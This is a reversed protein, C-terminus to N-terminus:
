SAEEEEEGEEAEQDQGFFSEKTREAVYDKLNAMLEEDSFPQPRPAQPAPPQPVPQVIALGRLMARAERYLHNVCRHTGVLAGYHMAPMDQELEQRLLLLSKQAQAFQEPTTDKTLQRFITDRVTRYFSDSFVCLPAGASLNWDYASM